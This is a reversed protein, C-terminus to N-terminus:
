ACLTRGARAAPPWLRGTTHDAPGTFDASSITAIGLQVAAIGAYNAPQASCLSIRIEGSKLANLGIEYLTDLENAM